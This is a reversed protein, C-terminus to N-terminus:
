NFISTFKDVQLPMITDLTQKLAEIRKEIEEKYVSIRM